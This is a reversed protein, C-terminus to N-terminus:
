GKADRGGYDQRRRFGEARRGGVESKRRGGMAESVNSASAVTGRREGIRGIHGIRGIVAM